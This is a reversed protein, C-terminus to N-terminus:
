MREPVEIGLLSLGNQMVTCLAMVLALRQAEEKTGIIKTKHYYENFMSAISYLYNAVVHPKYNKLSDVLISSFRSLTKILGIEEETSLAELGKLAPKKKSKRPM